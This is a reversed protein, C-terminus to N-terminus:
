LKRLAARVVEARTSNSAKAVADVRQALQRDVDTSLRVERKGEVSLSRRSMFRVSIPEIGNQCAQLDIAILRLSQSLPISGTGTRNMVLELAMLM